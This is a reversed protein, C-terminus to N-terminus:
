ICCKHLFSVSKKLIVVTFLPAWTWHWVWHESEIDLTCIWVLNMHLGDSRNTFVHNSLPRDILVDILVHNSQGIFLCMILSLGILSCMVLSLGILLYMILSLGILSCMVLSLGIFLCIILSIVACTPYCLSTPHPTGEIRIFQFKQSEYNLAWKKVQCYSLLHFSNQWLIFSRNRWGVDNSPM